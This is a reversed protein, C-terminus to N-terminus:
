HRPSGGGMRTTLPPVSAHQSAHTRTTTGRARCIRTDLAHRLDEIGPAASYPLIPGRYLDLATDLDGRDLARRVQSADSTLDTLLRYPKSGIRDTGFVKRVRFMEARITVPDLDYDELLVALRDATLGEPHESLLLLIESHRQSLPIRRQNRILNPRGSGLIELRDTSTTLNESTRVLHLRLESEAAAGTARILALVEPTAVRHSGTIDITGIVLGTAPDHVPAASCSWGHVARSYHEAGFFQVHHDLALATGPANTGVADESWETGEAFNMAAGRDQAVSDGAVWLLLGREDTIAILMGTDAADDVLLTCVVPRILAMPHASRYARFESTTMDASRGFGDPDVLNDTSRRWSDLVVPRVLQAATHRETRSFTPQDILVERASSVRRTLATPDDGPRLAIWPNLTTTM